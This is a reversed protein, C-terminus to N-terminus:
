KLIVQSNSIIQAEMYIKFDGQWNRGFFFFAEPITLLIENLRYIIQPYTVDKCYQTKCGVFTIHKEM